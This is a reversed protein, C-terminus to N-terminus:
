RGGRLYVAAKEVWGSLKRALAHIREVLGDGHEAVSDEMHDAQMGADIEAVLDWLGLNVAMARANAMRRDHESDHLRRIESASRYNVAHGSITMVVSEVAQLGRGAPTRLERAENTLRGTRRVTEVVATV